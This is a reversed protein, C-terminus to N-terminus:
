AAIEIRLQNYLGRVQFRRLLELGLERGADDREALREANEPLDHLAACLADYAIAFPSGDVIRIVDAETLIRLWEHAALIIDTIERGAWTDLVEARIRRVSAVIKRTRLADGADCATVMAHDLATLLGQRWAPDVGAAARGDEGTTVTYALRWWVAAPMALERRRADSLYRNM